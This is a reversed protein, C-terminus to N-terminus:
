ATLDLLHVTKKAENIAYYISVVIPALVVKIIWVNPSIKKGVHPDHELTWTVGSLYHADMKPSLVKAQAAKFSADHIVQYAM